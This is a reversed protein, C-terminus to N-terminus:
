EFLVGSVLDQPDCNYNHVLHHFLGTKGFWAALLTCSSGDQLAFMSPTFHVTMVWSWRDHISRAVTRRVKTVQQVDFGLEQILWDVLEISGGHM